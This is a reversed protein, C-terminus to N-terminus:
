FKTGNLRLRDHGGIRWASGRKGKKGQGKGDKEAKSKERAKKQCAMCLASKGKAAKRRESPAFLQPSKCHGNSCKLLGTSM